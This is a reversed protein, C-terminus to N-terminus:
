RKHMGCVRRPIKIQLRVSLGFPGEIVTLIDCVTPFTLLLLTPISFVVNSFSRLGAECVAAGPVEDIDARIVASKTADGRLDGDSEHALM